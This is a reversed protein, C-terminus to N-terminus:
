LVGPSCAAALERAAEPTVRRPSSAAFNFGAYAAGLACAAAVDEARTLGCIKVATM